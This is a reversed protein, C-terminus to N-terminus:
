KKKANEVVRYAHNKNLMNWNRGAADALLETQHKTILYPQGHLYLHCEFLKEKGETKEIIQEAINM